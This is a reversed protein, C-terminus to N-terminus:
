ATAQPPMLPSRRPDRRHPKRFMMREFMLHLTQLTFQSDEALFALLHFGPATIGISFERGLLSFQLTVVAAQLNELEFAVPQPEHILGTAATLYLFRQLSLLSITIAM